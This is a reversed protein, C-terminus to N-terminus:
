ECGLQAMRGAHVRRAPQQGLRQGGQEFGLQLPYLRQVIGSRVEPANAWLLAASPAEIAVADSELLLARVEPTVVQHVRGSLAWAVGPDFFFKPQQREKVHLKPRWARLWTGVM